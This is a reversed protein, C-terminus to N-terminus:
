AADETSRLRLEFKSVKAANPEDALELMLTTLEIEPFKGAELTIVVKIVNKHPIGLTQCIALNTERVSQTSM